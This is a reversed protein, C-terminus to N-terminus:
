ESRLKAPCPATELDRWIGRAERLLGLRLEAHNRALLLEIAERLIADWTKGTRQSLVQLAESESDTLTIEAIM